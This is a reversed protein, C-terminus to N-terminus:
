SASPSRRSGAILPLRLKRMLALFFESRQIAEVGWTAVMDLWDITKAKPPVPVPPVISYSKIGHKALRMVLENAAFEGVVKRDKDAWVWVEEIGKPPEFREMLGATGVAWVPESHNLLMRVALATEIGEAVHLRKYGDAPYLRIAGGSLRRFPLVPMMKKAEPVNAKRGMPSLYTRHITAPDGNQDAMRALIAPFHGLLIPTGKDEDRGWYRLRPHFRLEQPYHEPRLDLGRAKFYERLPKATPDTIPVASAWMSNLENLLKRAKEVDFDPDVADFPELTKKPQSLPKAGRRNREMADLRGGLVAFVQFLTQQFNWGYLRMLLAFGDSIPGCTNCIGGGNGSPGLEHRFFRFGDRSRKGHTPLPCPGHSGPRELAKDFLGPALARYIDTWRGQAMARVENAELLFAKQEQLM